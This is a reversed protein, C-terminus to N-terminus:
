RYKAFCLKNKKLEPSAYKETFEKIYRMKCSRLDKRNVMGALDILKGSMEKPDYLTNQPKLDTMAKGDNLLELIVSFIDMFYRKQHEWVQLSPDTAFEAGNPIPRFQQMTYGKSHKHESFIVFSMDYIDPSHINKIAHDSGYDNLTNEFLIHISFDDKLLDATKKVCIIEGLHMKSNTQDTSALPFGVRIKGNTGEGIVIKKRGDDLCKKTKLDFYKKLSCGEENELIMKYEEDSFSNMLLYLGGDRGLLISHDLGFKKKDFRGVRLAEFIDDKAKPNHLLTKMKDLNKLRFISNLNKGEYEIKGTENPLPGTEYIGPGCKLDCMNEEFLAVEVKNILSTLLNEYCEKKKELVDLGLYEMFFIQKQIILKKWYCQGMGQLSRELEPLFFGWNEHSKAFMWKQGKDENHCSAIIMIFITWFKELLVYGSKQTFEKDNTILTIIQLCSSKFLDFSYSPEMTPCSIKSLWSIAEKLKEMSTELPTM